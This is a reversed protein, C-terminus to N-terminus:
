RKNYPGRKRIPPIPKFEVYRFGDECLNSFYVEAAQGLADQAMQTCCVQLAYELVYREGYKAARHALKGEYQYEEEFPVTYGLKELWDELLNKVKDPYLRCDQYRELLKEWSLSKRLENTANRKEINKARSEKGSQLAKIQSTLKDKTPIPLIAESLLFTSLMAMPDEGGQPTMMPLLWQAKIPMCYRIHYRVLNGFHDVGDKMNVKNDFRIWDGIPSCIEYHCYYDYRSYLYFTYKADQMEQPTAKPCLVQLLLDYLQVNCQIRGRIRHDEDAPIRGELVSTPVDITDFTYDTLKGNLLQKANKSLLHFFVIARYGCFPEEREALYRYLAHIAGRSFEGKTNVTKTLREYAIEGCAEIYASFVACLDKEASDLESESPQETPISLTFSVMAKEFVPRLREMQERRLALAEKLERLNRQWVDHAHQYEASPQRLFPHDITDRLEEETYGANLLGKYGAVVAFLPLRDSMDYHEAYNPFLFERDAIVQLFTDVPTERATYEWCYIDKQYLDPYGKHQAASHFEYWCKELVSIDEKTLPSAGRNNRQSVLQVFSSDNGAVYNWIINSLYREATEDM